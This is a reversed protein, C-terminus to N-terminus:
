LVGRTAAELILFTKLKWRMKKHNTKQKFCTAKCIIWIENVEFPSQFSPM